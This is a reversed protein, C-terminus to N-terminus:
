CSEQNKEAVDQCGGILMSKPVVKIGRKECCEPCLTHPLGGTRPTMHVSKALCGHQDVSGPEWGCLEAHCELCYRVNPPTTPDVWCGCLDCAYTVMHQTQAMRGRGSKLEVIRRM